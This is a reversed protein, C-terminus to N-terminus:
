FLANEKAQVGTHECILLQEICNSVAYIGLHNYKHGTVTVMMQLDIHWHVRPFHYLWCWVGKDAKIVIKIIKSMM